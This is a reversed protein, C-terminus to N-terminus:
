PRALQAIEEDSLTLGYYADYFHQVEWALDLTIREPYFLEAMWAVGLLSEPVPTDMPAVMRPMRHVRGTQVAHVAQWDPHLLVDDEQVTGYPAILIVDPNWVLVQELNIENWSGPLERTVSTGGAAQIMFTQYMDGSAARTLSTGLFLVKVRGGAAVASADADITALVRDFDQTWSAARQAADPGLVDGLVRVMAKMAESTEVQFLLVPIGLGRLQEAVAVHQAGDALVLQIDLAALEEVNPDGFSLIRELRPELRLMAGSAASASKLGIFYALALRDGAGLAYTYYTGIGYVSALSEVPQSVTVEAGTSDVVTVTSQAVCTWMLLSALLGLVTFRM